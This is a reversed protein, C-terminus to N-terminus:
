FPNTRNQKEIQITQMPSGREAILLRPITAIKRLKCPATNGVKKNRSSRLLDCLILTVSVVIVGALLFKFLIINCRILQVDNLTVHDSYM